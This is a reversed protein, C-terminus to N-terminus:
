GTRFAPSTPIAPSYPDPQYLILSDYNIHTLQAPYPRQDYRCGSLYPDAPTYSSKGGQIASRAERDLHEERPLDGITITAM